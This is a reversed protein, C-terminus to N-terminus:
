IADLYRVASPRRIEVGGTRFIGPVEFLLPGTQYVPLFKHPMPLHLKVVSRDNTYAVMRDTGGAGAGDLGRLQRIMLPQGTQASYTNNKRLWEMVTMEDGNTGMRKTALLNYQQIPMLVTNALEVGLSGENIGSLLTNDPM